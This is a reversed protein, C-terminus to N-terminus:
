ASTSIGIARRTGGLSTAPSGLLCLAEDCETILDQALSIGRNDGIGTMTTLSDVAHRRAIRYNGERWALRGLGLLSQAAGHVDRTPGSRLRHAEEFAERAIEPSGQFYHLRGIGHYSASIGQLDGTLEKLAISELFKNDAEEPREMSALLIGMNNLTKGVGRLDRTRREHALVRRYEAMAGDYDQLYELAVARHGRIRIDIERTRPRGPVKRLRRLALSFYKDAQAYLGRRRATVGRQDLAEIALIREGRRDALEFARRAALAARRLDRGEKELVIAEDIRLQILSASARAGHAAHAIITQALDCVRTELLLHALARAAQLTDTIAVPKWSTSLVPRFATSALPPLLRRAKQTQGRLVISPGTWRERHQLVPLAPAWDEESRRLPLLSDRHPDHVVWLTPATRNLSSLYGRIDFDDRGAYGLVLLPRNGLLPDIVRRLAASIPKSVHRLALSLTSLDTPGPARGLPLSGHIKVVPTAGRGAGFTRQKVGTGHAVLQRFAIARRLCAQEILTDFNTTVVPCGRRIAEALHDHWRNPTGTLRAAMSTLAKPGLFEVVIDGAVEPRLHRLADVCRQALQPDLGISRTLPRVLEEVLGSALPLNAPAEVSIGAGVLFAADGSHIANKWWGWAPTRSRAM